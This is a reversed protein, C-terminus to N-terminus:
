GNTEDKPAILFAIGYLVFVGIIALTYTNFFGLASVYVGNMFLESFIPILFALIGWFTGNNTYFLIATWLHYVVMLCYAIVILIASFGSRINKMYIVENPNYVM